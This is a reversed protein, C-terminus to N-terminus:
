AKRPNAQGSSALVEGVPLIGISREIAARAVSELLEPTCGYASPLPRVDHTYFILWGNRRENERLLSRAAGLRDIGGYLSNARLLNLDIVSGNLGGYIGRCSTMEKGVARKAALTVQGNPYAFHASVPLDPIESMAKYGKRVDALFVDLSASHSSTHDFTHTALEHGDAAASYLDELRFQEGSSNTRNMLGTAVYFTARIGLNKLINGGVAYATRPFDDFAFSVLPGARPLLVPRRAARCLM